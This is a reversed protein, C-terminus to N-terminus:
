KTQNSENKEGKKLPIHISENIFKDIKQVIPQDEKMACEVPNKINVTSTNKDEGILELSGYVIGGMVVISAIFILINKWKIKKTVSIYGIVASLLMAILAVYLTDQTKNFSFVNMGYIGALLSPPLFAAGLQSITELRDNRNKENNMSVYTHLESIENDLDKIEQEFNMLKKAMAYLEIGQDQSTLERFHLKNIFKIYYEYLVQVKKELDDDDKLNSLISVEDRFRALSAQIALIIIAMQHYHYQTHPLIMGRGGSTTLAVFSYRTMGWLTGWGLWRPYTSDEALKAQMPAYQVMKDQGDIFLYKYWDNNKKYNEDEKQLCRILEENEAYSVVFMRDDLIPKISCLSEKKRQSFVTEGLIEVIHNAILLKDPIKQCYEDHFNEVIYESEEKLKVEIRDALFSKKTQTAYNKCSSDLYQPYVRRGYENIKLIDDFNTRLHNETEFVLVGIGTEFLRLYIDTLKLEFKTGDILTINYEGNEVEKTFYYSTEGPTFQEQINYLMDRVPETYYSYENYVKVDTSNELTFQSYDWGSDELKKAFEEDIEIHKCLINEKAVNKDFSFPFMFAHYSMVDVQEAIEEVYKEIDQSALYEQDFGFYNLGHFAENNKIQDSYKEKLNSIDGYFMLANSSYVLLPRADCFDVIPTFTDLSSKIISLANKKEITEIEKKATKEQEGTIGQIQRDRKRIDEIEQETAAECKMGNIHNEDNAAILEHDRTPEIDLIMLIQLLSADRHAYENHHDIIDITYKELLSADDVSLEVAYFQKKSDEQLRKSYDSLKAGWKQSEDFYPIDHEDLIDRITIMELDHGGLLFVVNDKNISMKM